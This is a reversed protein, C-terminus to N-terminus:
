VSGNGTPSEPPMLTSVALSQGDRLGARYAYRVGEAGRVGDRRMAAILAADVEEDTLKLAQSDRANNIIDRVTAELISDAPLEYRPVRLTALSKIRAVGYELVDHNVFNVTNRTAYALAMDAPSDVILTGHTPVSWARMAWKKAANWILEVEGDERGEAKVALMASREKPTM